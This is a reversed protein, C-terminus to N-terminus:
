LNGDIYNERTCPSRSLVLQSNGRMLLISLRGFLHGTVESEEQGGTLALSFGLQQVIGVSVEHFGGLVELPMAKFVIGEM